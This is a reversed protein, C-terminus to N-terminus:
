VPATTSGGTSDTHTHGALSKGGGTVDAAASIASTASVAGDLVINAAHIVLTGDETLKFYAEGPNMGLEKLFVAEMDAPINKENWYKGMVLGASQGNSMHLVLVNGGIQPKKYEDTFSFVPFEDTTGDDMDPYTVSVMGNKDNVTSIRGIRILRKDM